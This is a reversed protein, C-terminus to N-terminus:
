DGTIHFIIGYKTKEKGGPLIQFKERRYNAFSDSADLSGILDNIAFIAVDIASKATHLSDLAEFIKEKQM